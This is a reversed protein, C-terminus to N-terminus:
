IFRTPTTLYLVLLSGSLLLVGCLAMVILARPLRALRQELATPRLWVFPMCCASASLFVMSVAGWRQVGRLLHMQSIFLLFSVVVVWSSLEVMAGRATAEASPKRLFRRLLVTAGLAFPLGTAALALPTLEARAALVAFPVPCLVLGLVCAALLTVPLSRSRPNM